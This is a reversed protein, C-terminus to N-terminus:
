GSGHPPARSGGPASSARRVVQLLRAVGAQLGRDGDRVLDGESLDLDADGAAGSVVEAAGIPDVLVQALDQELGVPGLAQLAPQQGQGLDAGAGPATAAWFESGRVPRDIPSDAASVASSHSIAALLLVLQGDGRVGVEGGRVVAPEEVVQHRREEADFAVCGAGPCSRSFSAVSPGTKPEPSAAVIVAAL